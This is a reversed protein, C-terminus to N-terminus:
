QESRVDTAGGLTIAILLLATRRTAPTTAGEVRTGNGHIPHGDVLLTGHPDLTVHRAGIALTDGDLKLDPVDASSVTGDAQLQARQDDTSLKGDSTVKGVPRMALKGGDDDIREVTGDPLAELVLDQGEYFKLETIGLGTPAVKPGVVAGTTPAPTTSADYPKGGCAAVCATFAIALRALRHMSM